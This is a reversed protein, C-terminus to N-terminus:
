FFSAEKVPEASAPLKEFGWRRLIDRFHGFLILIAYELYACVAIYLPPDEFTERMEVKMKSKIKPLPVCKCCDLILVYLKM